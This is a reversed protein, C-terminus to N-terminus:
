VFWIKPTSRQQEPQKHVLCLDSLAWVLADMRDPSKQGSEQQPAYSLLQAELKKFHKAHVVRGKAYLAMVPEARVWKGRTARLAKYAVSQDISRLMREVLDGGNNVEAVLCDAEFAHYADIAKQAWVLPEYQGSLDDLVYAKGSAALGAVILGTEDSHANSTVAPDIAVVCRLLPPVTQTAPLRAADLMKYTWLAGAKQDLLQGELEQAAFSTGQYFTQMLEKYAASLHNNEFTSGRTVFVNKQASLTKLLQLPRPTTTVVCRPRKGLRLGVMLQDWVTSVKPFKALEDVWAADFQPGRLKEYSMASYCSAVAGSPWQLLGRSPLFLPRENPPCVSLLGAPGEIMVRRVDDITHGLLCINRAQGKAVWSRITEAGTRTKGFGRGALILWVFWDGTPEIQSPRAQKSWDYRLLDDKRRKIEGKFAKALRKLLDQRRAQDDPALAQTHLPM